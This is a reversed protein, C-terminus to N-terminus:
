FCLFRDEVHRIRVFILFPHTFPIAYTEHVLKKHMQGYFSITYHTTAATVAVSQMEVFTCIPFNSICVCELLNKCVCFWQFTNSSAEPKKHNTFSLEMANKKKRWM